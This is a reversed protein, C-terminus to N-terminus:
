PFSELSATADTKDAFDETLFFVAEDIDVGFPFATIAFGTFLCGDRLGTLVVESSVSSADGTADVGSVLGSAFCCSSLLFDLLTLDSGSPITSFLEVEDTLGEVVRPDAFSFFADTTGAASLSVFLLM